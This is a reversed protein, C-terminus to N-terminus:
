GLRAQAGTQFDHIELQVSRRGQWENFGPTFVLCCTGGALMLEDARDGFNFAVAPFVNQQQRVRFQLHREGKGVRRPTGVVQLPGALFRPRPNGAGYPELQNLAEVLGPTLMGLPLEADIVLQPAPPGSRFHQAAYSLFRERFGDVQSIPIKLGVATAHGGHSLLGNGCVRLAEHLLFGPVSRGSGQGVGLDERLAILLVPRAYLDALRGAVIGIVGPHWEPSALVLAPTQDLDQDALMDKAQELIRREIQQRQSNQGELFRALDVARERSSTTLLEVVLRACGLRGAANLRPALGFGIDAAGLDTKGGLGAVDLLAKLGLSPAQRLRALGHRVIIRNEDHLPVCDAVMGLAALAVSDLLFERLRPTVKTAGSARQCLAWAVKFAVGSGSLDGFPYSGGPLRPHVLVPADPLREKFEHHDTIILELGLRRAEEAEVLSAIGCDVTVVLAAGTRAIQALADLNLGYGEELRHPVYFDTPAGLLRLAQWLIATGTLGDVDYDGYVCVRKGQRAATHLRDAADAVGPLRDPDHLGKFPMALFRQVQEPDTLGRNLLLQAVIPSLRLKAGLSEIAARDHPLLHWTKAASRL